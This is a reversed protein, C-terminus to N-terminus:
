KLRLLHQLEEMTPSLSIKFRLSDNKIYETLETNTIFLSYGLGSTRNYDTVRNSSGEPASKFSLLKIVYKTTDDHDLLQIVISGRYPWELQDDYEGKMICIFVSLHSRQPKVSLTMKYGQLCTYFPESLWSREERQKAAFGDMVLDVPLIRLHGSLLKLDKSRLSKVDNELKQMQKQLKELEKQHSVAQLSMHVALSDSIHAPMDKRPLEEECGAYSFTCSVIELPCNASVHDDISKRQLSAGCDNPCPVLGCPCVNVHKTTVDEFTSEYECCCDCKFPRKLCKNTEHELVYQRQYEQKCFCCKLPMFLCGSSKYGDSEIDDNLHDAIAGLEGVWECGAEKFSCYVQLCNLTRQLRRDPLSAIFPSNCLPCPKKEKLTPQICPQCFSAGCKCDIMHPDHLVCLCVSCEVQLHKPIDEFFICDHGSKLQLRLKARKLDPEDMIIYYDRGGDVVDVSRTGPIPDSLHLQWAWDLISRM